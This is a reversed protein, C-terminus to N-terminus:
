PDSAKSAKKKNRRHKQYCAGCVKAGPKDKCNFWQSTTKETGCKVCTTGAATEIDPAERISCPMCLWTDKKLLKSRRMTSTNGGDKGCGYCKGRSAALQRRYCVICVPKERDDRNAYWQSTETTSCESCM